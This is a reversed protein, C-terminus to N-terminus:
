TYHIRKITTEVSTGDFFEKVANLLHAELDVVRYIQGDVEFAEQEYFRSRAEPNNAEIIEFAQSSYWSLEASLQKGKTLKIGMTLSKRSKIVDGLFPTNIPLDLLNGEAPPNVPTPTVLQSPLPTKGAAINILRTLSMTSSKLWVPAKEYHDDATCILLSVRCIDAYIPPLSLM